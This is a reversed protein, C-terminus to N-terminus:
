AQAECTIGLIRALERHARAIAREALWYSRAEDSNGLSEHTLGLTPMAADIEMWVGELETHIASPISRPVTAVSQSAM